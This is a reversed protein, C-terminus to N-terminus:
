TSRLNASMKIADFLENYSCIIPDLKKLSSLSITKQNAVAKNLVPTSLVYFIWQDMNLPDVTPKEKHRLLCFVYVDSHRSAHSDYTNTEPDWVKTPRISFKIASLEKQTWSQIYAGSKVEVKIGSKTEVDYTDWEIRHGDIQDIASAVIYEALVGRMANGTLDSAYWQWFSLLDLDLQKGDAHFKENGVKKQISLETYKDM